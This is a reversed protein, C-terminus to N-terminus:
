RASPPTTLFTEETPVPPSHLTPIPEQADTALGRLRFERWLNLADTHLVADMGVSRAGEVNEDIDDIFLHAEAPLGTERIVAHYIAPDPKEVQLEHSVLLRDFGALVHPYRQRIFEWHIENTNSLLYRAEVPAEAILRLVAEDEWFMDSWAECFAGYALALGAQQTLRHHFETGLVGGVGLRSDVYVKRFTDRATELPIGFHPMLAGWAREVDFPLLVKGLDSVIIRIRPTSV